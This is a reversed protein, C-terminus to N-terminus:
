FLIHNILHEPIAIMVWRFAWSYGCILYLGTGFCSSSCALRQWSVSANSATFTHGLAWELYDPSNKRSIAARLLCTHQVCKRFKGFFVLSSSRLRLDCIFYQEAWSQTFHEGNSVAFDYHAKRLPKTLYGPRSFAYAWSLPVILTISNIAM